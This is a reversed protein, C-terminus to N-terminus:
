LGPASCTILSASPRPGTKMAAAKMASSSIVWNGPWPRSCWPIPFCTITPSTRGEESHLSSFAGEGKGFLCTLDFPSLDSSDCMESYCTIIVNKMKELIALPSVPVTEVGYKILTEAAKVAAKNFDPTM